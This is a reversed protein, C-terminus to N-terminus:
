RVPTGDQYGSGHKTCGDGSCEQTGYQCLCFDNADDYSAGSGEECTPDTGSYTCTFQLEMDWGGSADDTRTATITKSAQSVTIAFTDGYADYYSALRVWNSKTVQTPCVINNYGEDRFHADKSNSSPSSGITVTFTSGGNVACPLVVITAALVMVAIRIPPQM